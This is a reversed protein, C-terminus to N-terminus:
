PGAMERMKGAISQLRGAQKITMENVQSIALIENAMEIIEFRDVTVLVTPEGITREFRHTLGHNGATAACYGCREGSSSKRIGNLWDTWELVPCICLATEAVAKGCGVRHVPLPVIAEEQIM